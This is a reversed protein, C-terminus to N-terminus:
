LPIYRNLSALDEPTDIDLDGEPFPIRAVSPGHRVLIKKAGAGDELALLEGFFPKTFLAPVGWGVRYQCAVLPNAGSLLREFIAASLLPQDCVSVVVAELQPHSSLLRTLGTKLSHGMGLHWQEDVAMDVALGALTAEHESAASGLVVTVPYGTQLAAEATQVLLPKSRFLVQQKPQGLRSSSGAALVLIAASRSPRPSEMM